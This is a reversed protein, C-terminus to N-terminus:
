TFFTEKISHALAKASDPKFRFWLEPEFIELEALALKGRNDELIDVRAYLPMEKCVQVVQQAFAIEKNSAEYLEVTGGYDDQVRFDGAKAKKLVAHSYVGNFLMLSIEGKRVISQQFEQLMFDKKQILKKYRDQYGKAEETSFKYTNFAGAAICPKLVWTTCKHGFQQEALAMAEELSGNSSSPIFYTNPLRIGKDRLEKLYNKDINWHVLAESNIFKTKKSTTQFWAMFDEFREFYDWPTRILVYDTSNWDFLPDSWSKIDLNLGENKLAKAVLGDELVVNRALPNQTEADLYADATLLVVDLGAM